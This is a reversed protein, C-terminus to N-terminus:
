SMLWDAFSRIWATAGAGGAPGETAALLQRTEETSPPVSRLVALLTAREPSLGRERVLSDVAAKFAADGPLPEEAANKPGLGNIAGIVRRKREGYPVAALAAPDLPRGLWIDQQGFGVPFELRTELPERPLGGVFRVPVIPAGRAIALDIFAGSMKEVPTRCSLSRTGEIHVMVSRENLSEALDMMIAPLSERDERHFFTIVQPDRVGPYSFSQKILQGLWSTQHEAKALTVTPRQALGSAIVSFLLSEIGVQHNALYLVSRGRLAAFAAPDALVVRRVFREALGYYLDEIPWPGRQFWERWFARVPELDLTPRATSQVSFDPGEQATKLSFRTLPLAEPLVGPHLGTEAALHEKQAILAVDRSGYAAAVTGPLWDHALVEAESLRTVGGEFRSMRLGAIPTRDRLFARRELPSARGLRSKPFCAEVLRLALVVRGEHILQIRYAPFRPGGLNGDKRVECRVQGSTPIAGYVDLEPILAPYSIDDPHEHRIPHTLADLLIPNLPGSPAGPGGAELIASAGEPTEVWSVLRQFAPGHFLAGSEYPSPAGPGVLPAWPAPPTGYSGTLVRGSAVREDAAFLEVKDGDRTTRLEIPKTVVAWKLARVDRLGVVKGPVAAALADVMSMMPLAPVTFTPRHDGLWSDPGTKEPALGGAPAIAGSLADPGPDLIRKGPAHGQGPVIRMGLGKAEYIRKNDVWLSATAVAYPGRADRGVEVIDMTTSITKNSPVVQGRYKWILPRGSELAEFEANEVGEDLGQELMFFQLLQIMAEIGLSGPQVPDQFFHAKFFWEGPDVDKEARLRGLGKEGGTPWFGTVRDLMLLQPNALRAARGFYREPRAELDVRYSSPESLLARQAESTTLGVQNELAAKPFFGFVTNMVYVKEDGIFCEVDFGEIIIGANKSISKIHVLTRLTGADPPIQRLLQGTGDLNRFALDEAVAAASGVFSALWGCPQLAAELFVAFPMVRAGNEDFYWADPPIDYSIEIRAGPEVVGIKGQISSVRSMFHYPPGPLRAVRRTGDFIRYMEGFADSPKGWACALLSPYGFEFDGIKAVPNTEVHDKLLQPRSELPWDPVLRLGLRRAHFAKKGDVTCLLDAWITPEPGAVVEEIFVEYRLKRSAPTAQGRCRLAIPEGTVPQFRWGDREKTYGLGTLYFAMTELCGDFMLTGPMCPDNKFHGSLFWDDPSLDLEASLYGRGWPGGRPDFDTVRDFLQLKGAPIRPTQVHTQTHNLAPGFCEWPRGEAYAQVATDDFSRPVSVLPASLRPTEVIKQGEPSWLVGASEALEQDTFFGAQGGRVSLRLKENVTCDYHFFFLRVPGQNAHGDVKIEYELTEGVTPLDGHYTLECGLLRYVREGRNLADIGLYSILLLDAQGSEILIGAPMRGQHLYWADEKVDTATRITGTGMSGPVADISLVRDALLLPPEPMRVQRAWQDQEKFLPGFIESIKGSAHVLLQERSLSLGPGQPAKARVPALAPQTTPRPSVVPPLVEPELIRAEPRAEAEVVRAPARALPAPTPTPAPAPAASVGAGRAALIAIAKAQHELFRQHAEAQTLLFAEHAEAIFSPRTGSAPPAPPYVPAHTPVTVPRSPPALNQPPRAPELEPATIPALPPAPDMSFRQKPDPNPRRVPEIEYVPASLLGIPPRHAQFRLSPGRAVVAPGELRDSLAAHDITVGAAVLTALAEYLKPLGGGEDDLSVVIAEKPGLIERIFGGFASRPGHEVFVRVGDEYARHITPRLDLRHIAQSTVADACAAKGLAYSRHGANTYFRVGEVAHTERQHLLLWKAREAEAEPVHVPLDYHIRRCRSKGLAAVAADCAATEGSIVADNDTHIISVYSGPQRRVTEEIEGLPARVSWTAWGPRARFLGLSEAQAMMQDLDRWAGFAFLSNSEGSSYGIAATPRLQLLGRSLEAHVLGLSSAGWLRDLPGPAAAADYAWGLAKSLSRFRAGVQDGLEPLHDLLAAGMKPYAAGAAAFVFALEGTIPRDSYRMGVASRGGHALVDAAQGQRARLDEPTTAVLACRSPGEGGAQGHRLREVVEARDRGSFVHIRPAHGRGESLTPAHEVLSLRATSGEMPRVEVAAARPGSSLWPLGDVQRRHLALAATAVSLLGSAAHSHGFIASPDIRRAGLAGEEGLVALVPRGKQEADSLRELVLVVAADAPRDYGALQLAEAAKQHAESTALDVAGVIALDIEKARLARAGVELAILGSREEASVTFSPGTTDLQSSLRNAVINPMTGVVGASRLGPVVRDRAEALAAGDLEESREALRWRLGYRAVEVDAGMGIVVQTRDKILPGLGTMAEDMASLLVLQQGLTQELDSPPFRLESQPLDVHDTKSGLPGGALVKEVLAKGAADNVTLGLGVIAIAEPARKARAPLPIAPHDAEVLLHANNGGFGFASIGARRPGQSEWAEAKTLLRFPSRELEAVPRGAHLTPPRVGASMAEVVKILAAVGAATILHGLNSKLSGIPLDACGQYVASASRIETGDGVPTGTAHCELLSIDRPELGSQEFARRMAVAQGQESPALFGRGRGDNSLGVGRIVGFVHDGSRRADSLRKLAVMAAGEAPVLGDAEANFPRSQGSKSLASLATFGVHIFLDDARNVAGALMLDARGDHLADCALKIAYLSSACAADLAYAGAGLGLRQELLLAPLGSMFRNRPDIQEGSDLWVSECFRSMSSSPFSLNGFIAGARSLDSAKAEALAGRAVTFLWSVLPDLGVAEPAQIEERVYGGRDTLARDIGGQASIVREAALRWRSAPASSILDQGAAVARWLASPSTAGPLVCARGVIAIPEFSM